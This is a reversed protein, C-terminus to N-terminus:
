LYDMQGLEDLEEITKDIEQALINIDDANITASSTKCSKYHLGSSLYTARAGQIYANRIADFYKGATKKKEGSCIEKAQSVHSISAGFGGFATAFNNFADNLNQCANGKKAAELKNYGTEYIDVSANYNAAALGLFMDCNNAAISNTSLVLSSTIILRKIASILM